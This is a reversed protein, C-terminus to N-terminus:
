AQVTTFLAPEPSVVDDGPLLDIEAMWLGDPQQRARGVIDFRAGGTCRVKLLNVAEADIEDITALTGQSEFRTKGDRGVESGTGICVVGFPDNQRMCQSVLDLYRTEFVKLQLLAGPFLVSKLPFLAVTQRRATM